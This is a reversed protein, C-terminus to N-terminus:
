RQRQFGARDLVTAPTGIYNSLDAFCVTPCMGRKKLHESFHGTAQTENQKRDKTELKQQIRRSSTNFGRGVEM